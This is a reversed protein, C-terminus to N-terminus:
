PACPRRGTFSPVENTFLLDGPDKGEAMSLALPTPVVHRDGPECPSRHAKTSGSPHEPDFQGDRMDLFLM